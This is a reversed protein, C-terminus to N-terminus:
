PMTASWATTDGSELGDAFLPGAELNMLGYGYQSDPGAPGMDTAAVLLLTTFRDTRLAVQRRTSWGACPM